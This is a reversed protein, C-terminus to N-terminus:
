KLVSSPQHLECNEQKRVAHQLELAKVKRVKGFFLLKHSKAMWARLRAKSSAEQSLPM